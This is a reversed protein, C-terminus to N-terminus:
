DNPDDVKVRGSPPLVVTQHTPCRYFHWEGESRLYTLLQGCKPCNVPFGANRV